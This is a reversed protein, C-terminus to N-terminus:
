NGAIVKELNQAKKTYYQSEDADGKEEWLVVMNM